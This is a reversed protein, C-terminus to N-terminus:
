YDLSPQKTNRYSVTRKAIQRDDEEKQMWKSGWFAALQYSQQVGTGNAYCAALDRQAATHGLNASLRILGFAMTEDDDLCELGELHWRLARDQRDASVGPGPDSARPLTSKTTKGSSGRWFYNATAQWRGLTIPM